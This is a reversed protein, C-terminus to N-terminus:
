STVRQCTQSMGVFMPSTRNDAFVPLSPRATL